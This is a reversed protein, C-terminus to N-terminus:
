FSTPQSERIGRIEVIKSSTGRPGPHHIVVERLRKALMSGSTTPVMLTTTAGMAWFWTGKDEKLQSQKEEKTRYLPRQLNTNNWQNTWYKGLTREAVIERM